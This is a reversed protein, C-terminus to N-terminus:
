VFFERFTGLHIKTIDKKYEPCSGYRYVSLFRTNGHKLHDYSNETCVGWDSEPKFVSSVCNDCTYNITYNIDRLVNLKNADM